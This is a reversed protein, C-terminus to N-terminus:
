TLDALLPKLKKLIQAYRWRVTSPNLSLIQGIEKHRFGGLVRLDFIEREDDSLVSLAQEIVISREASDDASKVPVELNETPQSRSESRMLNLARFRTCTILWGGVSDPMADNKEFVGLLELFVSQMVDEAAEKSHTIRLASYYVVTRYEDYCEAFLKAAFETM